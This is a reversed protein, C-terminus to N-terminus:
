HRRVLAAGGGGTFRKFVELQSPFSFPNYIVSAATSFYLDSESAKKQISDFSHLKSCNVVFRSISPKEKVEADVNRVNEGGIDVDFLSRSRALATSELHVRASYKQGKLIVAKRKRSEKLQEIGRTGEKKNDEELDM